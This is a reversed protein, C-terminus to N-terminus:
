ERKAAYASDRIVGGGLHRLAEGECACPQKDGPFLISTQKQIVTMEKTMVCGQGLYPMEEIFSM